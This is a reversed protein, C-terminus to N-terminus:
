ESCTVDILWMQASRNPGISCGIARLNKPAFLHLGVRQGVHSQQLAFVNTSPRQNTGLPNESGGVAFPSLLTEIAEFYM